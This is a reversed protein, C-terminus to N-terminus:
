IIELVQGVPQLKLESSELKNEINELYLLTAKDYYREGCSLCLNVKVPVFIIDNAISIEEKVERLEINDSHCILCNM